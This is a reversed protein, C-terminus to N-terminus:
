AMLMCNLVQPATPIPLGGSVSVGQGSATWWRRVSTYGVKLTPIAGLEDACGECSFVVKLYHPSKASKYPM